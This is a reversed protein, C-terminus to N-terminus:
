LASGIARELQSINNQFDALAELYNLRTSMYAQQAHIPLLISAKGNQFALESKTLITKALPLLSSEYRKVRGQNGIYSAYAQRVESEIAQALAAQEKRFQAQKALAELIPGQQRNFLPIELSGIIFFNFSQSGPASVYDPGASITLNPIRTRRALVEELRSTNLAKAKAQVEPRQKLALTILDPLNMVTQTVQGHLAGSPSKDSTAVFAIMRPSLNPAMLKFDGALPEGLLVNLRTHANQLNSGLSLLDNQANLQVIDSQLVDLGSIDGAAERKQALTLMEGALRSLEQYAAQKQQLNYLETYAQRVSTHLDLRAIVTQASVLDRQAQALEVRRARKGGLEVVQTVGLRYSTEAVGNDSLLSPNPLARATVIQAESIRIGAQAAQFQANNRDAMALAQELSLSPIEALSPTAVCLFTGLVLVGTFALALTASKFASLLV